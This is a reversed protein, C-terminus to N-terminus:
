NIKWKLRNVVSSLVVFGAAAAVCELPLVAFSFDLLAVTACHLRRWDLLEDVRLPSLAFDGEVMSNLRGLQIKLDHRLSTM